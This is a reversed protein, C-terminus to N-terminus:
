LLHPGDLKRKQMFNLYNHVFTTHYAIVYFYASISRSWKKGKLVREQVGVVRCKESGLCRERKLQVDASDKRIERKGEPNM